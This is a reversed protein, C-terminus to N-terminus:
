SERLVRKWKSVFEGIAWEVMVVKNFTLNHEARFVETETQVDFVILETKSLIIVTNQNPSIFFDIIEPYVRKFAEFNLSPNDYIEFKDIARGMLFADHFSRHANGDTEILGLIQTQGQSRALTFTAEESVDAVGEHWRLLEPQGFAEDIENPEYLDNLASTIGSDQLPVVLSKTSAQFFAAGGTIRSHFGKLVYFGDTIFSIKEYETIDQSEAGVRRFESNIFNRIENRTQERVADISSRSGTLWLRSYDFGILCEGNPLYLCDVRPPEWYRVQGVYVFGTSQPSAIYDLKEAIEVQNGIRTLYLTQNTPLEPFDPERFDYFQGYGERNQSVDTDFGLLLGSDGAEPTLQRIEELFDRQAKAQHLPQASQLDSRLSVSLSSQAPGQLSCAQLSLALGMLTSSLGLHLRSM